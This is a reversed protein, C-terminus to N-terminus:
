RGERGGRPEFLRCPAGSSERVVWEPAERSKFGFGRCGHPHRPEWTVYYHICRM